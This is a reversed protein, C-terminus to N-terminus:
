ESGDLPSTSLSGPELELVLQRQTMEAEQWTLSSPPFAAFVQVPLPWGAPREGPFGRPAQVGPLCRCRLSASAEIDVPIVYSLLM